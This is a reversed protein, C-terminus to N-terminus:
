RHPRETAPHRLCGAVVQRHLREQRRSGGGPAVGAPTGASPPALLTTIEGPAVPVECQRRTVHDQTQPPLAARAQPRQTGRLRSAVPTSPAAMSRPSETRSSRGTTAIRRRVRTQSLGKLKSITSRRYPLDAKWDKVRGTTVPGELAQLAQLQDPRAVTAGRATPLLVVTWGLLHRLGDPPGGCHGRPHRPPGVPSQDSGPRLRTQHCLPSGTQHDPIVMPQDPTTQNAGGSIVVM